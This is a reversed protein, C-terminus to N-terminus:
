WSVYFGNSFDLTIEKDRQDREEVKYGKNRLVKIYEDSLNGCNTCYKGGEIAKWIKKECNPDVMMRRAETASPLTQSNKM